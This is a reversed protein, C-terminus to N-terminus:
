EPYNADRWAIVQNIKFQPLRPGGYPMLYGPDESSIREILENSIIASKVYDYDVLPIPAGNVPPRSHCMICNETIINKITNNYTVQNLPTDSYLDAETDNDCSLM